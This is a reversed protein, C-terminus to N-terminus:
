AVGCMKACARVYTLATRADEPRFTLTFSRASTRMRTDGKSVRPSKCECALIGANWDKRGQEGRM